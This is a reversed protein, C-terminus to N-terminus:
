TNFLFNTTTKTKVKIYKKLISKPSSLIYVNQGYMKDLGFVRLISYFQKKFHHIWKKEPYDPLDRFVGM